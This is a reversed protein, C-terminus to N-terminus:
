PATVSRRSTRVGDTCLLTLPTGAAVPVRTSIGKATALMAGSAADLVLIGQTGADTCTLSVDRGGVRSL